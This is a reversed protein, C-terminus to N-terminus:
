GWCNSVPPEIIHDRPMHDIIEAGDKTIVIMNELRVGGARFEGERGEVALTMGPEFVQPHELSWQRNIIPPGYMFLGIGHGIEAALVEVEEKYGWKTAPPFHKAADATTAGPKIADIVADLRDLLNQYMDKEKQNAKRGAILTRYTCSLYGLYKINCFSSYILDGTQIMRGAKPFGREFSLPGTYFGLPPVEDAGAEYAADIAIRSLDTDRMGPRLSAWVKFWAAECIAAVIKMCNIEDQTKIATAELMLPWGDVLTIGHTTLAERAASDFGIIALKEGALGRERLQQHIDAAFLKAEEQTAEPGPGSRFWARAVRWNKIWPAQDPLQYLWGSHVFVAPDGEAFFLVYYLQPMFDAGRLGTLYRFDHAQTALLAAIGHKRMARRAKEAREERMRSVNIREQWDTADTGFTLKSSMKVMSYEGKGQSNEQYDLSVSVKINKATLKRLENSRVVM